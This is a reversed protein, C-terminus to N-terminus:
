RCETSTASASNVGATSRNTCSRRSNCRPRSREMRTDCARSCAICTTSANTLFWLRVNQPGISAGPSLTLEGKGLSLRAFILEGADEYSDELTFGIATYWRVTAEMDSVIFMPSSKEVSRAADAVANM